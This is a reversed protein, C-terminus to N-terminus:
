KESQVEVAANHALAFHGDIIVPEGPKLDFASSVVEIYDDNELGTDVYCWFAKGERVIFVLKRRDREVVADRPVLLRNAYRRVAIRVSAFMGSKLLHQPNSIEAIVTTARTQPNITPNVGIIKGAFLTDPFAAFKAAIRENLRINGLESELVELKLKLRNLNVLRLLTQGPSVIEGPHVAVDGIVGAFPARIRCNELQYETKAYQTEAAPLGSKQAMLEDRKQGSLVQAAQYEREIKQFDDEPLRGQRFKEKATQYRAEQKEFGNTSHLIDANEPSFGSEQKRLAYEAQANFLKARAEQHAIRYERDDLQVLLAGKGITQGDRVPAQLVRGGIIPKIEIEHFSETVGSATIYQVLEGMFARATKVEVPSAPAKEGGPSKDSPAEDERFYQQYLAGLTVLIALVIIVRLYKM